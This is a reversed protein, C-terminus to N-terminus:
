KQYINGSMILYSLETLEQQDPKKHERIYKQTLSSLGAAMYQAAYEQTKQDLGVFGPRCSSMSQYIMTYLVECLNNEILMTLKEYNSVVYQSFRQCSEMLSIPSDDGDDPKTDNILELQYLLINEKTGFLSYFTQRSVGSRSCLESVSIDKFEKERLLENLTDLLLKQSTLATPNKGQYM